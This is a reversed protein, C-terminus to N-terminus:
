LAVGALQVECSLERTAHGAPFLDLELDPFACFTMGTVALEREYPVGEFYLDIDSHGPSFKGAVASGFLLVRWFSLPRRGLHLLQASPGARQDRLYFLESRPANQFGQDVRGSLEM